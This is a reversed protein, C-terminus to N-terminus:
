EQFYKLSMIHGYKIAAKEKELMMISGTSLKEGFDKLVANILRTREDMFPVISRAGSANNKHRRLQSIRKDIYYACFYTFYLFAIYGDTTM